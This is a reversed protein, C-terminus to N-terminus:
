IGIARLLEALVRRSDFHEEAVARAARAETDYNDSVATVAAFAEDPEIFGRLGCGSPVRRSWGTDQVVAPRGSALYSTTRESFWGTKLAVYMDKAVSFEATSSEIYRRYREPSASVEAADAIMWGHEILDATPGGGTIALEFGQGARQPLHRVKLLESQKGYYSRGDHHCPAAYPNWSMVTTFRQDRRAPTVRWLSLVVPQRTPIWRFPTSPIECDDDDINEAFTAHHDHEAILEGIGRLDRDADAASAQGILCQTYGPDTDIFLTHRARRYEPRLWCSGSVNLLLDTDRLLGDLELAIPGHPKGSPDRLCWDDAFGFTRMTSALYRLTPEVAGTFTVQDADYFWRGTDELYVVQWGLQRLGLAYQLYHYAMGGFPYTGVLGTVVAIM